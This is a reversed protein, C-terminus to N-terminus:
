RWSWGVAFPLGVYNEALNRAASPAAVVRDLEAHRLREDFADTGTLNHLLATMWWSFHQVQWVRRLCRASYKALEDPTGAYHAGLGYSLAVADAVALNLGKAGTAPVIHASDGVLFLSGHRMPEVVFSRLATVGRDFIEGQELGPEGLRRSLAAWIRDDPWDTLSTDPPVQLYQRTVTPGRMSHLAFGDPHRAYILEEAAPKTRALIGLWACPYVREYASLAGTPISARSVGHFGDCGAVFDCDVTREVGEHVFSVRTDDVRVSDVEFLIPPALSAILDKVLEQQAYVTIAQGGTLEAFDIRHTAGDFRLNIGHHLMGERRLRDALGIETLLDVTPQELVGARVRSEIHAQSQAEIVVCEIGQRHLLHALTLGAPGAGIVCVQTRM